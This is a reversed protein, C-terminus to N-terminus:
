KGEEARKLIVQALHESIEAHRPVYETCSGDANCWVDHRGGHRQLRWGLGRLRRELERRKM